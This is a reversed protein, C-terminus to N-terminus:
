NQEKNENQIYKVLAGSASNLIVRTVFSIRVVIERNLNIYWGM